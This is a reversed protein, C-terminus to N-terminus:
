LNHIFILNKNKIKTFLTLSIVDFDNENLM